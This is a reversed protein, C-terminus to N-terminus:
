VVSCLDKIRQVLADSLSYSSELICYILTNFKALVLSWFWVPVKSVLFMVVANDQLELHTPHRSKCGENKRPNSSYYFFRGIRM